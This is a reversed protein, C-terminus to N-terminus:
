KKLSLYVELSSIVDNGEANGTFSALATKSGDTKYISLSAATLNVLPYAFCTAGLQVTDASIEVEINKNFHIYSGYMGRAYGTYVGYRYNTLPYFTESDSGKLEADKTISIETLSGGKRKGGGFLMRNLM